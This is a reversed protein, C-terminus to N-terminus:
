KTRGKKARKTQKKLEEAKVKFYALWMAYETPSLELIEYAFKGLAEGLAM